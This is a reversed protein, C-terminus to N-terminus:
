FGVVKDCYEDFAQRLIVKLLERAHEVGINYILDSFDKIRYGDPIKINILYPYDKMLRQAHRQGWNETGDIDNDYLLFIFRFRSKLEDMVNKKPNISEAQFAISPIKINEIVACADKRSSTIVLFKGKDPLLHWLEIVSLDNYNVWKKYPNKPQYIKYTWKSDKYEAFAFTLKGCEVRRDNVFYHSIPTIWARHALEKSVGMSKWYDIDEQNWDRPGITIERPGDFGYSTLVVNEYAAVKNSTQVQTSYLIFKSAIGLDIVIQQLAENFSLNLLRMVFAFCDDSEGTAFDKWKYRRKHDGIIFSPKNDKRFPSSFSYNYDFNSPLYRRYIQDDTVFLRINKVNLDLKLEMTLLYFYGELNISPYM